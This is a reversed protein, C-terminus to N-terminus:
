SIKRKKRIRSLQTPTVGIYSAVLYQPISDELDGFAEQFVKYRGDADLIAMQELRDCIEQYRRQMGRESLLKFDSYRDSLIQIDSYRAELIRSDKLAQIHVLNESKPDFTALLFDGERLFNKIFVAEGPKEVIMGFLGNTIFGLRDNVDGAMAFYQNRSYLKVEFCALIDCVVAEGLPLAELYRQLSLFASNMKM